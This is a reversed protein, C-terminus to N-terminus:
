VIVPSDFFGFSALSSCSTRYIVSGASCLDGPSGPTCSSGLLVMPASCLGESVVVYIISYDPFGPVEWIIGCLFCLFLFGLFVLLVLIGPSCLLASLILLTLLVFFLCSFFSAMLFLLVKQVHIFVCM